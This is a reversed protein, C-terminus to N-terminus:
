GDYMGQNYIGEYVDPGVKIGDAGTAYSTLDMYAKGGSSEMYLAAWEPPYAMLDPSTGASLWTLRKTNQDDGINPELVVDICPNEAKFADIVQNMYDVRDGSSWDDVRLTVKDGTCTAQAQVTIAASPILLLSALLALFWKHSMFNIGGVQFNCM